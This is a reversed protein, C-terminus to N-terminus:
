GREHAQGRYAAPFDFVDPDPGNRGGRDLAAIASMDDDTLEFDFVEHNQHIRAPNSSKPIV